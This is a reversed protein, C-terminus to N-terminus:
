VLRALAWDIHEALLETAGQRRLKLIQIAKQVTNETATTPEINGLGIAVNRSWQQYGIRRIASGLTREDFQSETWSMLDVLHSNDLNHRPEFDPVQAAQAFKNWPCVLQCDDCGYVRNGILPRLEPSISGKHEITLYSICRRADLQYPAVIAQTPCVDICQQCTGCHSDVPETPTLPLDTFLSGLFFVSGQARNLTLTHKGRWGVGAQEALAVEMVPASDCFARYGHPGIHESIVDALKQLQGRVRKHYDRGRAYHSVYGVGTANIRQWDQDIWNAAGPAYDMGVVIASQTGPLLQTPQARKAPERAMYHMEGHFKQALWAQLDGTRDFKRVNVIGVHRFGLENAWQEIQTVSPADGKPTTGDTPKSDFFNTM